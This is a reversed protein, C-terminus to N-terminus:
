KPKATYDLFATKLIYWIVEIIETFINISDFM